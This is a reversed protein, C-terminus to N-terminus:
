GADPIVSVREGRVEQLVAVEDARHVLQEALRVRQIRQREHSGSEDVRPQETGGGVGQELESAVWTVEPGFGAQEGDQVGPSLVERQVDVQVADDRRPSNIRRLPAPDSAISAIEERDAGQGANEAALVEITQVAGHSVIGGQGRLQIPRLEALEQPERGGIEELSEEQM